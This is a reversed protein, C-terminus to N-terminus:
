LAQTALFCLTCWAPSYEACVRQEMNEVDRCKQADIHTRHVSLGPQPPTSTGTYISFPTDVVTRVKAKKDGFYQVLGYHMYLHTLLFLYTHVATGLPSLINSYIDM